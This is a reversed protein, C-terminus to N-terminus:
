SQEIATICNLLDQSTAIIFHILRQPIKADELSSDPPPIRKGGGGGGASAFMLNRQLHFAKM